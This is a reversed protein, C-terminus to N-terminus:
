IRADVGHQKFYLKINQPTIQTFQFISAAAVASAGGKKVALEFDKLSGAGGNSIVPVSVNSTVRSVLAIDYGDLMGDHDISTLFIEGAGLNVVEKVWDDVAWGSDHKGNDDFVKFDGDIKKVDISVVICQNGFTNSAESIFKPNALASSNISIKDAGLKLVQRIDDITKIGGGITLPMFCEKTVEKILWPKIGDKSADLDLFVLEDVDRANFVKVAAIYSGINRYNKFQVSKVLRLDKITLCPIIRTKLM